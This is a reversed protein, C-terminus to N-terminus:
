IALRQLDLGEAASLLEVVKRAASDEGEALLLRCCLDTAEAKVAEEREGSESTSVILEQLKTMLSHRVSSDNSDNKVEGVILDLRAQKSYKGPGDAIKLLLEIAEGSRGEDNLLRTYLYQITEDVKEGAIKCYYNIMQRAIHCHAPEEYYVRHALQAGQKAIEVAEIELGESKQKQRALASRRYYEVAAAPASESCALATVYLALPTQFKEKGCIAELLQHYQQPRRRQAAKVALTVEFPSKPLLAEETLQGRCRQYEMESLIIGGVFDKAEPWKALIEELLEVEGLRLALFALRLHLEFDDACRSSGVRRFLRQLLKTSTIGSLRYKLMETRFYVADSLGKSSYISDLTKGAAENQGALELAKAMLLNGAPEWKDRNTQCRRIVDGLIHVRDQQKSTLAAFYDVQGKLLLTKVGDACVKRWLGTAGYLLDWDDGEYDEIRERIREQARYIEQLDSSAGRALEALEGADKQDFFCDKYEYALRTQISERMFRELRQQAADANASIDDGSPLVQVSRHQPVRLNTQGHSTAIGKPAVTLSTQGHLIYPPGIAWATNKTPYAKCVVNINLGPREDPRLWGSCPQGPDNKFRHMEEQTGRGFKNPRALDWVALSASSLPVWTYVASNLSILPTSCGTQGHGFSPVKGSLTFCLVLILLRNAPSIM